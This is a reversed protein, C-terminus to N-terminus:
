YFAALAKKTEITCPLQYVDKPKIWIFDSHEDDLVFNGGILFGKGVIELYTKGNFEDFLPNLIVHSEVFFLKKQIDVLLGTEEMVERVMVGTFDEGKDINSFKGGPLQYFGPKFKLNLKRKLLLIEGSENEVIVRVVLYIEPLKEKTM